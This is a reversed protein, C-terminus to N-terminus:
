PRGRPLKLTTIWSINNNGLAAPIAFLAALPMMLPNTVANFPIGANFIYDHVGAVANIFPVHNLTDSLPSGQAFFSGADAKNNLGIM